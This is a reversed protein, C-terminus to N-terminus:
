LNDIQKDLDALTAEDEKQHAGELHEVLKHGAQSLKQTLAEIQSDTTKKTQALLNEDDSSEDMAVVATSFSEYFDESFSQVIENVQSLYEEIVKKTEDAM